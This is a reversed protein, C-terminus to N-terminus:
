IINAWFKACQIADDTPLALDSRICRAPALPCDLLHDMSQIQGCECQNDNVLGWLKMSQKCRGNATRLQNLSRWDAGSGSSPAQRPTYGTQGLPTNQGNSENWQRIWLKSREKEADGTLPSTIATFNHRSKLRQKTPIYNFLSHHRDTLQRTCEAM